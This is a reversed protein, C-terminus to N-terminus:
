KRKRWDGFVHGIVVGFAVSFFATVFLLSVVTLDPSTALAWRFVATIHNAPMDDRLTLFEILAVWGAALPLTGITLVLTIIPKWGRRAM